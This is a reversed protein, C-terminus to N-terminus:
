KEQKRRKRSLSKDLPNVMDDPLKTKKLTRSTRRLSRNSDQSEPSEASEQSESSSQQNELANAVSQLDQDVNRRSSKERRPTPTKEAKRKKSENTTAM